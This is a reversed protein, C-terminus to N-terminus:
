EADGETEGGSRRRADPRERTGGRAPSSRTRSELDGSDTQGKRRGGEKRARLESIASRVRALREAIEKEAGAASPRYYRRGKLVEPFYESEAVTGPEAHPYVYGKGYGLERMLSTPANRLHLPVPQMGHERVDKEAEQLAAYSANSKPACALYTTAQALCLRCEPLGVFHVAEKAAVALPLAQPDANGIDESALIVLRRAIFLPDEGGELMRALWYLAADPDSGRISKIYASILNYHEEGDRDYLIAKKQLTEEAVSLDVVREGSPGPPTTEVAVELANLARRADGGAFEAIHELAARQVRPRLRGLGREEDAIAREMLLITERKSLPRLVYVRCRSLLASNVEFSPNETTAGLLVITGREVWPLFADQQAKNFRHLEDVFLITRRGQEELARRATETVRRIDKVGSTVASYAVFRAASASAMLRALTTKGSGPPGWLIASHLDGSEIAKRLVRGPGLIHDQGLFEDLTRPRMRDALPASSGAEGNGERSFLDFSNM